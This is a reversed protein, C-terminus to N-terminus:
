NEFSNLIDRILRKQRDPRLREALFISLLDKTATELKDNIIVYQFMGVATVEQKANSLRVNVAEETETSRERLRAELVELSPPLIFISIADTMSEFINKAGQVDIELLADKGSDLLNQVVRKSTGYRHKHVVAFELFEDNAIMRDFEADDVFFYERGNEEGMRMARTTFSVSYGIDPLNERLKSILTGKGGGSPSSIIFLKGQNM